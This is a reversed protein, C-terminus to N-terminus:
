VGTLFVSLFTGIVIAPGFAISDKRTKKKTILLYISIFFSIVLSLLIAGWIGELSLMFGLVIFLKIDGFGISNKMCVSCLISAVVLAIVAISESILEQVILDSEFFLEFPIFVIRYSIGLMIFSNPIRFSKQDIYAIPWLMSLLAIRKANAILSNDKYIFCFAISIGITVVVMILAYIHATKAIASKEQVIKKDENSTLENFQEEINNNKKIPNETLDVIYIWYSVACRVLAIIPLIYTM